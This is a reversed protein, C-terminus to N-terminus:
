NVLYKTIKLVKSGSLLWNTQEESAEGGLYAMLYEPIHDHTEM